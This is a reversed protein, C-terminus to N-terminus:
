YITKTFYQGQLQLLTHLIAVLCAVVAIIAM